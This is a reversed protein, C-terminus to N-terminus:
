QKELDYTFNCPWMARFITSNSGFQANGSQLELKFDGIAVFHHVFSSTAYFLHGITKWPWVDFQLTVHYLVDGIKVWIPRKRVTPWDCSKFGESKGQKLDDTLNWPWVARFIMSNSGFQANGSQLELKFEGIAIFHQVFSSVALSLHGITKWPWGDFKLTVHYLVDGIKVWIPRKWVIPWDCSEFGESKGQKLNDTLNWPWVARFLTSNSGSQANGSQLELKFEGIAVFHHM